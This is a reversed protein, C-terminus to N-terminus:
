RSYVTPVTYTSGADLFMVVGNLRNGVGFGRRMQYYSTELPYKEDRAVLALGRPLGTNAPDVREIVPKPADLNIGLLYNAPVRDWEIDWAGAGHRGRIRGPLSSPLGIVQNANAGAKIYPDMVEEYDTLAQIKANHTSNRFIAINDGFGFHHYLDAVMTVFPDNTDSISSAAYGSVLYHDETAESDSDIVPPYVVADGNALPQVPLTGERKDVFSFLSNYFLSKLIERRVTNGARLQLSDIHNNLDKISMYAVDVTDMAIADAFDMLPFAVDWGGTIKVEAPRGMESREPMYGGGPLKYRRTHDETTEDVFVAMAANLEQNIRDIEQQVAEYVISQGVKNVFTRDSEYDKVNLLGYIQSM